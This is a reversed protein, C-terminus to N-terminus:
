DDSQKNQHWQKFDRYHAPCIRHGAFIMTADNECKSDICEMKKKPEPESRELNLPHNNELCWLVLKALANCPNENNHYATRNGESEYWCETIGGIKRVGLNMRLEPNRPLTLIIEPKLMQWLESMTFVVDLKGYSIVSDLAKWEERTWNAREGAWDLSRLYTKVEYGAIILDKELEQGIEPSTTNIM